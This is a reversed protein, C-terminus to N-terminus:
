IPEQNIYGTTYILSSISHLITTCIAISHAVDNVSFFQYSSKSTRFLTKRDKRLPYTWLVNTKYVTLTMKKEHQKFTITMQYHSQSNWNYYLIVKKRQWVGVIKKEEFYGLKSKM